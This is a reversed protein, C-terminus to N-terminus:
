HSPQSRAGSTSSDPQDSAFTAEQEAAVRDLSAVLALLAWWLVGPKSGLTVVDALGYTHYAVQASLCGIAVARALGGGPQLARSSMQVALILVALYAVLGPLGLDYAAQLFVNHAHAYGVDFPSVASSASGYLSRFTGLGCGLLPSERIRSIAQSWIALRSAMTVNGWPTPITAASDFARFMLSPLLPSWFFRWLLLAVGMASAVVWKGWAWRTALICLLGAIMGVWAGRSQTLVLALGLLLTVVGAFLRVAAVAKGGRGSEGAPAILVSLALPLVFLLTGGLQNMNVRGNQAEPLARTFQPLSPLFSFARPVKDPAVGSILGVLTFALALIFVTGLAAALSGDGRIFRLIVRFIALGLLLSTVKPLTLIPVTSRYAGICTMFVLAILAVDYPSRPWISRQVVAVLLWVLMLTAVALTTWVPFVTPFWLFPASLAVVALELWLLSLGPRSRSEPSVGHVSAADGVPAEPATITGRDQENLWRWLLWALYAGLLTSSVVRPWLDATKLWIGIGCLAAGCALSQYYGWSAQGGRQRALKPTSFTYFLDSATALLLALGLIILAYALAISWTGIGLIQIM